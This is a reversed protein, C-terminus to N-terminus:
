VCLKTGQCFTPGLTIGVGRFLSKVAAEMDMLLSSQTMTASLSAISSARKRLPLVDKIITIFLQTKVCCANIFRQSWDM